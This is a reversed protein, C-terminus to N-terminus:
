AYKYAVSCSDEDEYFEVRAITCPLKLGEPVVPYAEDRWTYDVGDPQGNDNLLVELLFRAINDDAVARSVAIGFRLKVIYAEKVTRPERRHTLPNYWERDYSTYEEPDVDVAELRRRDEDTIDELTIPCNRGPWLAEERKLEMLADECEARERDIAWIERQGQRGPIKCAQPRALKLEDIRAYLAERRANFDPTPTDNNM